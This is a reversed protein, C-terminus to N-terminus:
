STLLRAGKAESREARPAAARPDRDTRTRKRDDRVYRLGGDDGVDTGRRTGGVSDARTRM